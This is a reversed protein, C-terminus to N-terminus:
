KTPRCIRVTRRAKSWDLNLGHKGLNRALRSLAKKITEDSVRAGDRFCNHPLDDWNVAKGSWLFRVLREQNPTLDECVASLNNVQNNAEPPVPPPLDEDIQDHLDTLALICTTLTCKVSALWNTLWDLLQEFKAPLEGGRVLDCLKDAGVKPDDSEGMWKLIGLVKPAARYTKFLLKRFQRRVPVPWFEFCGTLPESIVTRYTNSCADVFGHAANDLRKDAIEVRRQTNERTQPTTSEKSLEDIIMLPIFTQIASKLEKESDLLNNVVEIQREYRERVRYIERQILCLQDPDSPLRCGPPM